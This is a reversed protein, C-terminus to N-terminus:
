ETDGRHDLSGSKALGRSVMYGIAIAGVVQWVWRDDWSHNSQGAILTGAVAAIMFWFETTMFSPKTEALRAGTTRRGRDAYRRDSVETAVDAERDAHPCAPAARLQGDQRETVDALRSQGSATM